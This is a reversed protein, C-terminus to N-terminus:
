APKLRRFPSVQLREALGTLADFLTQPMPIGNRLREAYSRWGLEGPVFVEGNPDSPPV